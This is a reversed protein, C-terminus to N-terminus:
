PPSLANWADGQSETALLTTEFTCNAKGPCSAQSTGVWGVASTGFDLHFAGGPLGAGREERVATGRSRAAVVRGGGQPDVEYWANPTVPDALMRTGMAIEIRSPVIPGPARWSRGGDSTLYFAFGSNQANGTYTVPLVGEQDNFFTPVDYAPTGNPFAPPLGLEVREWTSGGDRTVYLEDGVAGGATWGLSGNVFNIKDGIPIGIKEWTLGGDVTRFLDGASFNSSTSIQVMAWGRLDDVFDLHTEANEDYISTDAPFPAPVWTEGGDKTVYTMWGSTGDGPFGAVVAWGRMADLFFVDRIAAPDVNPPTVVDWTAGGDHTRSLANSSLAWGETENMLQFDVVV